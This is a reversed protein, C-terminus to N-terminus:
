RAYDGSKRFDGATSGCITLRDVPQVCVPIISSVSLGSNVNDAHAAGQQKKGDSPKGVETRHPLGQDSSPIGNVNSVTSVFSM